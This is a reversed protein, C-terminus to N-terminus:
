AAKRVRKKEDRPARYPVAQARPFFREPFWLVFACWSTALFIGGTVDSPWHAGAWVRGLAGVFILLAALSWTVMRWRRSLHPALSIALMLAIWTFFVAHGSPYSYGNSPDLVKIVDISPRHRGLAVKFIQALLSGGAGFLMLLGARREFVIMAIVIAAGAADQIVGGTRNTFNMVPVLPGWNISQALVELRIDLISTLHNLVLVTNGAFLLAAVISVILLWPRAARGPAGRLVQEGAINDPAM